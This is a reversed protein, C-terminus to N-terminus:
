NAANIHRWYEVVNSIKSYKLDDPHIQNLCHQMKEFDRLNYFGEARYFLIKNRNDADLEFKLAKETLELLEPILKLHMYVQAIKVVLFYNDPEAQLCYRFDELASRLFFFKLQVHLISSLAYRNKAYGRLRYNKITQPSSAINKSLLDIETVLEKEIKNLMSNSIYRVEYDFDNLAIKLLKTRTHEDSIKTISLCVNVKQSVNDTKLIDAFPQISLSELNNNSIENKKFSNVKEATYSIYSKFGDEQMPFHTAENKKTLFKNKILYSIYFCSFAISSFVPLAIESLVLVFRQLSNAKSIKAFAYNLFVNIVVVITYSALNNFKVLGFFVSCIKIIVIILLSLERHM